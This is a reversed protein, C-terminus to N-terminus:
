DVKSVKRLVETSFDEHLVLLSFIQKVGNSIFYIEILKEPFTVLSSAAEEYFATTHEFNPHVSMVFDKAASSFKPSCTLEKM